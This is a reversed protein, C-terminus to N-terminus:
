CRGPLGGEVPVLRRRCGLGPARPELGTICVIVFSVEGGYPRRWTRSGGRGLWSRAKPVGFKYLIRAVGWRLGLEQILLLEPFVLM